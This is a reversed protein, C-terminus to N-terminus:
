TVGGQEILNFDHPRLGPEKNRWRSAQLWVRVSPSELQKKTSPFPRDGKRLVQWM